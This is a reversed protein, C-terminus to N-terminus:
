QHIGHVKLALMLRDTVGLKEFVSSIHARVTRETINLEDAISQNSRGSAVMRAVEIERPTLGKTWAASVTTTKEVGREFQQLLRALLTRGMWIGGGDVVKLVTDLAEPQTYAHIYGKAGAVLFARGEEDNPNLSGAVIDLRGAQQRWEESDLQPLNPTGADLVVLKRDMAGWRALESWNRARAPMWTSGPLRKWHAWLLDDHTLMLVPRARM